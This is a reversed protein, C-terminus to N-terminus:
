VDGRIDGTRIRGPRGAAPLEATSCRVTEWKEDDGNFDM